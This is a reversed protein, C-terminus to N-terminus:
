YGCYGGYGGAGLAALFAAGLVVILLVGIITLVVIPIFIAIASRLTTINHVFTGGVIILYIAYLGIIWGLIPIWSVVEVASAYAM